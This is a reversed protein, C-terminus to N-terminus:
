QLVMITLADVLGIEIQKSNPKNSNQSSYSEHCVIKHPVLTSCEMTALSLLLLCILATACDDCDRFVSIMIQFLM